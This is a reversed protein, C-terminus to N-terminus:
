RKKAHMCRECNRSSSEDIDDNALSINGPVHRLVLLSHAHCRAIFRLVNSRRNGDIPCGSLNALFSTTRQAFRSGLGSRDVKTNAKRIELVTSICFGSNM